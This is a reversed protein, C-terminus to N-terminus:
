FRDLWFHQRGTTPNDTANDLREEFLAQEARFDSVFGVFSCTSDFSFFTALFDTILALITSM